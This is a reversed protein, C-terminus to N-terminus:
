RKRAEVVLFEFKEEGGSYTRTVTELFCVDFGFREMSECYQEPSMFRFPYNNGYYPSSTRHVGAITSEDIRASPFFNLFADSKKGPFYSFFIGNPKLVQVVSSLFKEGHKEDLCNSSFVDVVADFYGQDFDLSTMDGVSLQASCDYENLMQKALHLSKESIDMGYADFGEKAIMWLNPGSGCGVELIKIDRRKELSLSFFNRGMFRCLEENPYRRQAKFGADKYAQEYWNRTKENIEIM